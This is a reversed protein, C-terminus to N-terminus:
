RDEMRMHTDCGKKKDQRYGGHELQIDYRGPLSCIYNALLYRTISALSEEESIDDHRDDVPKRPRCSLFGTFGIVPLISAIHTKASPHLIFGWIKPQLFRM